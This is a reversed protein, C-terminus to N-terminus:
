REEVPWHGILAAGLTCAQCLIYVTGLVRHGPLTSDLVFVPAGRTALAIAYQHTNICSCRRILISGSMPKPSINLCNEPSQKLFRTFFVTNRSKAYLFWTKCCASFQTFVLTKALCPCLFVMFVSIRAVLLLFVDYIGHDQAESACFCRYKCHQKAWSAFVSINVCNESHQLFYM